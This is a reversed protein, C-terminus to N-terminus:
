ANNPNWGKDLQVGREDLITFAERITINCGSVHGVGKTHEHIDWTLQGTDDKGNLRITAEHDGDAYIAEGEGVKIAKSINM